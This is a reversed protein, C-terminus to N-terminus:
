SASVTNAIDVPFDFKTPFDEKDIFSNIALTGTAADGKSLHRYVHKKPAKNPGQDQTVVIM